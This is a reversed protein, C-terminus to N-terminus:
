YGGRTKITEQTHYGVGPVPKDLVDVPVVDFQWVQIRERYGASQEAGMRRMALRVYPGHAASLDVLKAKLVIVQPSFKAASATLEEMFTQATDVNSDGTAAYHVTSGDVSECAGRRIAGLARIRPADYEPMPVKVACLDGLRRSVRPRAEDGPYKALFLRAEADTKGLADGLMRERERRAVAATVRKTVTDVARERGTGVQDGLVLLATAAVGTARVGVGRAHLPGAELFLGASLALGAAVIQPERHTWAVALRSMPRARAAAQRFRDGERAGANAVASEVVRELHERWARDFAIKCILESGHHITNWEVTLEEAPIIRVCRADAVVLSAPGLVLQQGGAARFGLASRWALIVAVLLGGGLLGAARWISGFGMAAPTTIATILGTGLTIGAALKLWGPADHARASPEGRIPGDTRLVALQLDLPLAALPIWPARGAKGRPRNGDRAM